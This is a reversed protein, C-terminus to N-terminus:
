VGKAMEIINSAIVIILFANAGVLAGLVVTRIAAYKRVLFAVGVVVITPIILKFPVFAWTHAFPAMLPNAEVFGNNTAWMTLFCDIAQTVLFIIALKKM